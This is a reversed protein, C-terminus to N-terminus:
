PCSRGEASRILGKWRKVGCAVGSKEVRGLQRGSRQELHAKKLLRRKVWGLVSGGSVWLAWDM